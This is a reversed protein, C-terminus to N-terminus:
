LAQAMRVKVSLIALYYVWVEWPKTYNLGVVRKQTSYQLDLFLTCLRAQKISFNGVGWNQAFPPHLINSLSRRPTLPFMIYYDFTRPKPAPDTKPKWIGNM